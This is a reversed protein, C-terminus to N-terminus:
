PNTGTKAVLQQYSQEKVSASTLNHQKLFAESLIFYRAQVNNRHRLYDAEIDPHMRVVIGVQGDKIDTDWHYPYAMREWPIFQDWPIMNTGFDFNGGSFDTGKVFVVVAGKNIVESTIRSDAIGTTYVKMGNRESASWNNVPTWNSVAATSTTTTRDGTEGLVQPEVNDNDKSCSFLLVTTAALTFIVNKM